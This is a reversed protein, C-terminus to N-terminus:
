YNGNPFPNSIKPLGNHYTENKLIVGHAIDLLNIDRFGPASCAEGTLQPHQLVNVYGQMASATLNVMNQGIAVAPTGDSGTFIVAPILNGRDKLMLMKGNAILPHDQPHGEIMGADQMNQVLTAIERSNESGYGEFNVANYQLQSVQANVQRVCEANARNARNLIRDYISEIRGLPGNVEGIARSFDDTGTLAAAFVIVGLDAGIRANNGAVQIDQLTRRINRFPNQATQSYLNPLEMVAKSATANILNPNSALNVDAASAMTQQMIMQPNMGYPNREETGVVNEQNRSSLGGGLQASAESSIGVSAGFVALAALLSRRNFLNLLSPKKQKQAQAM